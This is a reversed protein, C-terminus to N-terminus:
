RLEDNISGTVARNSIDEDLDGTGGATRDITAVYDDVLELAQCALALAAVAAAFEPSTKASLTATGFRSVMRCILRAASLISSVGNVNRAM